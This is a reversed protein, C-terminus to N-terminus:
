LREKKLCSPSKCSENAQKRGALLEARKAKGLESLTDPDSELLDAEELKKWEEDDEISNIKGNGFGSYEGDDLDATPDGEQDM